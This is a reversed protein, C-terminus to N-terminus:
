ALILLGGTFYGPAKREIHAALFEGIPETTPAACLSRPERM